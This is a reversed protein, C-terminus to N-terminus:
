APKKARHRGSSRERSFPRGQKQPAKAPQVKQQDPRNPSKLRAILDKAWDLDGFCCQDAVYKLDEPMVKTNKFRFLNEILDVNWYYERIIKRGDIEDYSYTSCPIVSKLWEPTVRLRSAAGAIDYADPEGERKIINRPAGGKGPRSADCLRALRQALTELTSEDLTSLPCEASRPQGQQSLCFSLGDGDQGLRLQVELEAPNGDNESGEETRVPVCGILNERLEGEGIRLSVPGNAKKVLEEIAQLHSQTM